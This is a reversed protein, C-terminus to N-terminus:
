SRRPTRTHRWRKLGKAEGVEVGTARPLEDARYVTKEAHSELEYGELQQGIGRERLTSPDCQEGM